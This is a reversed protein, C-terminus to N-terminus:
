VKVPNFRSYGICEGIIQGSPLTIVKFLLFDTDRLQSVGLEKRRQISLWRKAECFPLSQEGNRLHGVCDDKLFAAICNDSFADTINM